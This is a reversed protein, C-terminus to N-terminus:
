PLLDFLYHTPTIAALKGGTSDSITGHMIGHLKTGEGTMTLGGRQFISVDFIPGGSYGGISPNELIMFTCPQHNDARPLTIFGSSLYTRFTLPSFYEAADLGLPFGIATLETNRDIPTKTNEINESPLFRNQLYGNLIQQKPNLVLIAIDAIAHYKWNIVIQQSTLDELSLILPKDNNGKIIFKCSITM